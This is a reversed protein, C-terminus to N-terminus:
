KIQGYFSKDFVASAMNEYSSHLKSNQELMSRILLESFMFAGIKTSLEGSSIFNEPVGVIVSHDCINELNTNSQNIIAVTKLGQKKAYEASSLIDVTAGSASFFLAVDDKKCGYIQMQAMHSDLPMSVNLGLRLLRCYIFHASVSSAGLGFCVIRNSKILLKSIKFLQDEDIFDSAVDMVHNLENTLSSILNHPKAEKNKEMDNRAVEQALALRFEVLSAFGIERCFRVVSSISAGTQDALDQITYTTAAKPDDCVIQAIKQVVPTMQHMRARIRSIIAIQDTM